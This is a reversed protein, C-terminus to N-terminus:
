LGRDFGEQVVCGKFCLGRGLEREKCGGKGAAREKVELYALIATGGFLVFNLFGMDKMVEYLDDTNTSAGNRYGFLQPIDNDRDAAAAVTGMALFM